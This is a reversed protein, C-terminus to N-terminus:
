SEEENEKLRRAVEKEVKDDIYKEEERARIEDQAIGLIYAILGLGAIAFNINFRSRM